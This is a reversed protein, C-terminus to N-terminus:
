QAPSSPRYDFEGSKLSCPPVILLSAGEQRAGDQQREEGTMRLHQISYSYCHRTSSAMRIAFISTTPSRHHLALLIREGGIEEDKSEACLEQQAAM